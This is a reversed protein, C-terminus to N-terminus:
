RLFIGASATWESTGGSNARRWDRGAICRVCERTLILPAPEGDEQGRASGAGAVRDDDLPRLANSGRLDQRIDVAAGAVEFRRCELAREEGCSGGGASGAPPRM